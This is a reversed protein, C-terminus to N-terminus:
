LLSAALHALQAPPTEEDVLLAKLSVQVYPFEGYTLSILQTYDEVYPWWNLRKGSPPNVVATPAANGAVRLLRGKPVLSLPEPSSGDFNTLEVEFALGSLFPPEWQFVPIMLSAFLQVYALTGKPIEVFAPLGLRGNGPGSAVPASAYTIITPRRM